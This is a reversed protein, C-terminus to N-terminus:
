QAKVAIGNLIFDVMKGRDLDKQVQSWGEDMRDVISHCFTGIMGFILNAVFDWDFERLTGDALGTKFIERFLNVSEKQQNLFSQHLNEKAERNMEFFEGFNMFKIFFELEVIKEQALKLMEDLIERLTIKDTIKNKVEANFQSTKNKVVQVFLDDKSAFYEYITGKGIGALIAIDKMSANTFGNVRFVEFAANLIIEEKDKPRALDVM